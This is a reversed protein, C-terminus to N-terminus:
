TVLIFLFVWWFGLSFEIILKAFIFALIAKALLVSFEQIDYNNM